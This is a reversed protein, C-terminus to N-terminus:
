GCVSIANAGYYTVEALLRKLYFMERAAESAAVIETETTSIAVSAQLGHFPGVLMSKSCELLLDAQLLTEEMNQM